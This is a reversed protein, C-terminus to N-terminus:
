PVFALQEETYIGLELLKKRLGLLDEMAAPKNNPNRLLAAPHFTGMYLRGDRELFTGHQQTVKYDPAIIATASIRGICVIAQPNILEIQKQLYNMCLALEEKSPDRNQPPRCKLMNTIYINSKRSLGVYGLMKDMLQGSRGVFAEGRLDEQEGPAEGILMVRAKPNGVGVVVNTRGSCLGCRTCGLLETRLEDFSSYELNIITDGGRLKRVCYRQLQLM